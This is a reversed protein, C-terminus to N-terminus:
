LVRKLLFLMEEPRLIEIGMYEKIKLLHKNYSLIYASHSAIACEIIKDDTPDDKVVEVKISPYVLRAFSFIEKMADMAESDSFTFDRKLVRQFELMIDQSTYIEMKCCLLKSLLKKSVSSKWLFASLLVNTDLVVKM